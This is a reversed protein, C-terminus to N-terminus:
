EPGPDGAGAAQERLRVLADSDIDLIEADLRRLDHFINSFDAPACSQAEIANLAAAHVREAIQLGQGTLLRGHTTSAEGVYHAVDRMASMAAPSGPESRKAGIALSRCLNITTVVHSRDRQDERRMADTRARRMRRQLLRAAYFIAVMIPLALVSSLSGATGLDRVDGRLAAAAIAVVIAAVILTPAADGRRRTAGQIV